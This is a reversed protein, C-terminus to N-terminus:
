GRAAAKRAPRRAATAAPRKAGRSSAAVRRRMIPRTRSRRVVETFGARRFASVHGFWMWADAVRKEGTDYPYGEVIRAGRKAAQELAARLLATTVGKGRAGRAVFFCPVSWVAERDVPALTRSRELRTYAARPALACWGVPESGLYAIIGPREGSTVLRKLGRRNGDGKGRRFDAGTLRPWMCWCGACAGKVGFLRELDSWRSPTVPLCRVSSTKM